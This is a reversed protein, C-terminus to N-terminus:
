RFLVTEGDEDDILKGDVVFGIKGIPDIRVTVGNEYMGGRLAELAHTEPLYTGKLEIQERCGIVHWQSGRDFRTKLRKVFLRKSM